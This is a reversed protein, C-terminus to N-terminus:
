ELFGSLFIKNWSLESNSRQATPLFPEPDMCFLKAEDFLANNDWIVGDGGPSFKKHIKEYFLGRTLGQTGKEVVNFVGEKKRRIAWTMAKAINNTTSFSIHSDRICVPFHRGRTYLAADHFKEEDWLGGTRLVVCQQPGNIIHNEGARLALALAYPNVHLSIYDNALQKESKHVFLNQDKINPSIYSDETLIDGSLVSGYVNESSVVGLIGDWNGSFSDVVNRVRLCTRVFSHVSFIEVVDSIVVVDSMRVCSRLEEDNGDTTLQPPILVVDDVIKQLFSMRKAKTTTATIYVDPNQKKLEKTLAFGVKGCGIILVRDLTKPTKYLFSQRKKLCANVGFLAYGIGVKLGLNVDNRTLPKQSSMCFGVIGLLLSFMSVSLFFIKWKM